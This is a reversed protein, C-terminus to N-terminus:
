QQQQKSRHNWKLSRMQVDVIGSHLGKLQAETASKPINKVFLM